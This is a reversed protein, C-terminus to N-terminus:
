ARRNASSLKGSTVTSFPRDYGRNLPTADRNMERSAMSAGIRSLLSRRVGRALARLLGPSNSGPCFSRREAIGSAQTGLSNM